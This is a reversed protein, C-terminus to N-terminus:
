DRCLGTLGFFVFGTVESSIAVGELTWLTRNFSAAMGIGQPFVTGNPQLMGHECEMTYSINRLHSASRRDSCRFVYKFPALGISTLAPNNQAMMNFIQDQPIRSILDDMRQPLPLSSSCFFQRLSLFFFFVHHQRYKM